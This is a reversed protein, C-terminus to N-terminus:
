LAINTSARHRTTEIPLHIGTPNILQPSWPGAAVIVAGAAVRGKDTELGVVRGKEIVVSLARTGLLLEAGLEKARRAYSSATTAPDAYGSEPEYAAGQL